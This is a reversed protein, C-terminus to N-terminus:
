AVQPPRLISQSVQQTSMVQYNGPILRLLQAYFKFSFGSAFYVDQYLSKQTQHEASREKEEAQKIKKM